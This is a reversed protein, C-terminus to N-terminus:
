GMGKMFCIISIILILCVTGTMALLFGMATSFSELVRCISRGSFVSCVASTLKLLLYHAGIKLFPVAVIALMALVGYIGATNKIMGASIIVTESADSLISGVIPVMGSITLKAAKVATQDATGTIIGTISIYAMFAYLIIKLGWTLCWRILDRLKGLMTDELGCQALSIALYLYVCPVLVLSIAGTLLADVGATAVYLAASSSVGGQSALAATMVPLLLKGYQSMQWVTQTALNILSNSSYFLLCAVAVVGCISVAQKSKGEFNQLTSILMAAGIVSLCVGCLTRLDPRLVGLASRVVYWLGEGFSDRDQPLLPQVESPPEPAVLEAGRVPIWLFSFLMVIMFWKKM